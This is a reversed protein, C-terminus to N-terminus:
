PVLRTETQGAPLSVHRAYATNQQCEAHRCHARARVTEVHADGCVREAIARRELRNFFRLGTPAIDDLEKKPLLEARLMGIDNQILIQGVLVKRREFRFQLLGAHFGHASVEIVRDELVLVFSFGVHSLQELERM